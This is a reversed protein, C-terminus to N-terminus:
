RTRELKAPRRKAGRAALGDYLHATRRAVDSWDFRAVHASAETVLRFRLAPNALVWEMMQALSRPDRSRFRLGVDDNPVVERLGGTDAVICPCGSAMAELAVLGFPEYISPVVCLDAIRYLSRLVDDGIWGLFSGHRPPALRGAGRGRRAGRTAPAARPLAAGHS